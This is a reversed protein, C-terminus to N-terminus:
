GDSATELEAKAAKWLRRLDHWSLKRQIDAPLGRSFRVFRDDHRGSKRLQETAADIMDEAADLQEQTPPDSGDFRVSATNGKKTHITVRM